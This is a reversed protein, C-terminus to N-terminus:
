RRLTRGATSRLVVPDHSGGRRRAPAPAEGQAQEDAGDNEAGDGDVGAETVFVGLRRRGDIHSAVCPDRHEAGGPEHAFAYQRRHHLIGGHPVDVDDRAPARRRDGGRGRGAAHDDMEM